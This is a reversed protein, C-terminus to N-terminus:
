FRRDLNRQASRVAMICGLQDGAVDLDRAKALQELVDSLFSKEGIEAESPIQREAPKQSGLASLTTGQGTVGYGAQSDILRNAATQVKEVEKDCRTAWAPIIWVIMILTAGFSIAM